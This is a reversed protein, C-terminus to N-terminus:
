YTLINYTHGSVTISSWYATHGSIRIGANAYILGYSSLSSHCILSRCSFYSPGTAGQKTADGYDYGWGAGGSWYGGNNNVYQSTGSWTGANNYASQAGQRLADATIQQGGVTLTGNLAMNNATVNGASTVRFNDGISISGGTIKLNSATVAGASTVKFAGKGLAIGNTGIYVGNHATDNINNMGNYISSSSITFGSTGNGIYGSTATIKGKVEVGSSTAKFVTQNNSTLTWSNNTLNWGFSSSTGGSKALVDARISTSTQTISSRLTSEANTARTVESQIQSQTISIQAKNQAIERKYIRDQKPEYPYEHDIEEDQPAEIEASMLSSYDRSMKYIGSYVGNVTVGDGLEAAPDLLAGTATFPQYQFGNSQLEALIAKAQALTGAPNEIRLVRGANRQDDNTPWVIVTDEDVLIEVGSYTDFQPSVDHTSVKQGLAIKAYESLSATM